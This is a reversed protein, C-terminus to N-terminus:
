PPSASIARRRAASRCRPFSATTFSVVGMASVRAFSSPMLAGNAGFSPPLRSAFANFSFFLLFAFFSGDGGGLEDFEDEEEDLEDEEDDDLEDEDDDLEDEDDLKADDLEDDLSSTASSRLRLRSALELSISSLSTRSEPLSSSSSSSSASSTVSSSSTLLAKLRALSVNRAAKSRCPFTLQKVRSARASSTSLPCSDAMSFAHLSTPSCTPATILFIKRLFRDSM